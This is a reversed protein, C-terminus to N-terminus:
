EHLSLRRSHGCVVLVAQKYAASLLDGHAAAGASISSTSLSSSTVVMRTSSSLHSSSALSVGCPRVRALRDHRQTKGHEGVTDCQRVDERVRAKHDEM